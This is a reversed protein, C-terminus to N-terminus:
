NMSQKLRGHEKRRAQLGFLVKASGLPLGTSASMVQGARVSVRSSKESHNTLTITAWGVDTVPDIAIASGDQVDLKEFNSSAAAILRICVVALIGCRLLRM